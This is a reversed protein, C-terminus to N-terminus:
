APTFPLVGRHQVLEGCPERIGAPLTALWLVDAAAKDPSLPGVHRRVIPRSAGTDVLGPRATNVLIDRRGAADALERALVKVAAM